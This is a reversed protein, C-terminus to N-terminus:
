EDLFGGVSAPDSYGQRLMVSKLADPKKILIEIAEVLAEPRARLLLSARDPYRNLVKMLRQADSSESKGKSAALERAAKRLGEPDTRGWEIVTPEVSLKHVKTLGDGWLRALPKLVTGRIFEPAKPPDPKERDDKRDLMLQLAWARSAAIPDAVTAVRLGDLQKPSSEYWPKLGFLLRSYADAKSDHTLLWMYPFSDKVEVQVDGRLTGLAQQEELVMIPASQVNAFTLTADKPLKANIEALIDDTFADYWYSLEFGSKWAGKPGGIFENYYSLEYPHIRILGWAAPLLVLSAMLPRAWKRGIKDAVGITGWGAFAAVFFFTPLFLRVGDHAPTEFMRMFPLTFLNLLFFLPLKDRYPAFFFGVISAILITAPITIAMLVFANDWPLSYEYIQGWYIIQIDPLVGRRTTTIANYHALRPLAERWWAPNGLWAIAPGFALMSLWMDLAPRTTRAKRNIAGRVMWVVLPMLLIAGPLWTVPHDRFLDTRSPSASTVSVGNGVQLRLFETKLRVIEVYSLILPALMLLSTIVGDRWSAKDRLRISRILPGLCIWAVIPLVVLVAAMKEVFALGILVGVAVRSWRAHPETLGKWFALAAAAWLMLGPMDTDILHAQGFLRPMLLLSAASVGGVWAGYRRAMFGFLLTITAAFEIVSAMRRAPVDKMVGGFIGYTLLNLQGALPPHFNIGHRGYPWYYLLSDRDLMEGFKGRAIGEWWQVSLMQSHRYAPEDYTYGFDAVSPAIAVLALLFVLGCAVALRKGVMPMM